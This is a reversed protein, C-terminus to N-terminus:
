LHQDFLQLLYDDATTSLDGHIELYPAESRARRGQNQIDFAARPAVCGVREPKRDRYAALTSLRPKQLRFPRSSARVSGILLDANGKAQELELLGQSKGTRIKIQGAAAVM